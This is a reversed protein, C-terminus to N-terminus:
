CTVRAWPLRAVVKRETDSLNSRRDKSGCYAGVANNPERKSALLEGVAAHYGRVCWAFEEYNYEKAHATENWIVLDPFMSGDFFIKTPIRSLSFIKRSFKFCM